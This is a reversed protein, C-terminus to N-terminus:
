AADAVVRNRGDRQARYLAEDVRKLLKAPTDDPGTLGSIGVSVTLEIPGGASQIQFPESAIRRRLREAANAAVARNAGPMLVIFEEGGSRCVLDVGRISKRLRGAVERLVEDGADRGYDDNIAKFFDIDLVLVALSKGGAIAHDVLTALHREMYPGNHLATLPDAIAPELLHQGRDRLREAYRKKRLQTRARAMLENDDVPHLVFDNVGIELSRALRVPNEDPGVLALIQVYRTRELSRLQSCLRLGDCAELALSTIVLDYNGQAARFLAENGDPEVDVRHERGLIAAMRDSSCTCDEVLLIHGDRGTEAAPEAVPGEIGIERSTLARMRLEDTMMRLRVLSRVRAVFAADSIPQTLIEDAGAELGRVLDSPQGPATVMILPIHKTAEHSKLRRCLSFGDMDPMTPEILVIDCRGQECVALTEAGSLAVLVDFYAASLRAEIPKVSARTNAAVLIRASM